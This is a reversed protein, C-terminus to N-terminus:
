NTVRKWSRGGAHLYEVAGGARRVVAYRTNGASLEHAGTKELAVEQNGQKLYLKGDKKMLDLKRLGQSYTGAFATIEADTMAIPTRPAPTEAPGLPLVIEMAKEATRNLSVGTRNALVIVGFRQEPAMRIVSGYGSRSGGHQVVRLGRFTGTQLGYSYKNLSGPIEANPTQMRTIVTSAILQKGELRGGNVFATVWRSLDNVSSFISGAPWSATNNAAPRIISLQGNVLDHGQALPYTMAIAPRFTTRSMGLPGFVSAAVQDAFAKGSLTESLFGALWYGPNSYSYVKGAETFLRDDKWGRVEKGLAEDDNSGFMPAEDLIGSTHSLLQHATVQSVKPSLGQVYKGVPDNLNIKGQEALMLLTVATFMKTTSGLRFLTEPRVPEETEVNALGFGKAFIIRDGLVVAVAAGPTRTQKLEERVVAELPAFDFTQPAQAALTSIWCLFFLSILRARRKM